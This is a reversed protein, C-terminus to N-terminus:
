SLTSGPEVTYYSGSLVYKSLEENKKLTRKMKNRITRQSLTDREELLYPTFTYPFLENSYCLYMCIVKLGKM